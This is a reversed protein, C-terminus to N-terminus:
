KCPISPVKDHKINSTIALGTQIKLSELRKAPTEYEGGEDAGINSPSREKMKRDILEVLQNALKEQKDYSLQSKSIKRELDYYM